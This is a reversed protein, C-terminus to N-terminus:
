FNSVENQLFDDERTPFKKCRATTAPDKPKWVRESVPDLYVPFLISFLWWPINFYSYFFRKAM